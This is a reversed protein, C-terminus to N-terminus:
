EAPLAAENPIVSSKHISHMTFDREEQLRSQRASLPSMKKERLLDSDLLAHM